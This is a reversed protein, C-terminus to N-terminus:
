AVPSRAPLDRSRAARAAGLLAPSPEAPLVRVVTAFDSASVLRSGYLGLRAMHGLLSALYAAGLGDVVGGTLAIREIEADVALVGLLAKALPETVADLLEVARPEGSGVAAAFRAPSPDGQLWGCGSAELEGLMAAIARGSSFSSLHDRGGCACDRSPSLGAYGFGAPLHGIEGQLGSHASVPVRGPGPEFSRLAIGSSVTLVAFRRLSALEPDTAAGLAAATVDNVVTWRCGPLAEGLAGGLDFDLRETAGWLPSAGVIRGSGADIAAGISVGVRATGAAPMLRRTEAALHEVLMGQLETLSAEPFRSFSTAPTRRESHLDGQASVVAARFWTGGLDFAIV